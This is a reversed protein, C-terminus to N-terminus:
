STEYRRPPHDLGADRLRQALNGLAAVDTVVISPHAKHAPVFPDEVGLHLELHRASLWV